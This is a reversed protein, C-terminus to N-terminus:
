SNIAQRLAKGAAFKAVKKAQIKIPQGTRPNRGTRAERTSVSFTGFGVLTVKDGSRLSVEINSLLADVARQAQSKALDADQAVANVLDTKNMNDGIQM